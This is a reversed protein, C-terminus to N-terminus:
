RCILQGPNLSEDEIVRIARVGCTKELRRINSNKQGRAASVDRPNVILTIEATHGSLDSVARIEKRLFIESQVLHGFAPHYPGGQVAGGYELDETPQLGMRIVPIDHATFIEHLTAVLRVADDLSPPTYRGDQHWRALTSGALIVAPYIRVFDPALAALIEATQVSPHGSDGPLGTMIQAGTEYGREKLQQLAKRNQMATHGRRSLSLVGDDMSQIGLEIARVSFGSILDLTQETITDPRTSFRVQDILGERVCDDTEKLLDIIRDPALGLFNGGFFAAQVPSRKRRNYALFRRLVPRIDAVAPTTEIGTIATQDCFVCRHPCGAHPIFIPIVLPSPRNNM